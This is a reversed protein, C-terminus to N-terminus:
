SFHRIRLPIGLKNAIEQCKSIDNESLFDVISLTITPVYNQADKIFRLLADYSQLGFEPACLELYTQADPANLSISLEDILGELEPATPRGVILDGLGNTNVRIHDVGQGRLWDAVEIMTDYASFPEGFGCFVVENYDALPAYEQIAAIVETAIPERDLWLSKADGITKFEDRLCFTCACPCVNTINLYLANKYRYALSSM